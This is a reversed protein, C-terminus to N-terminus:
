SPVARSSPRGTATRSAHSRAPRTRRRRHQSHAAAPGHRRRRRRRRRRHQTWARVQGFPHPNKARDAMAYETGTEHLYWNVLPSRSGQSGFLQVEMSVTAAAKPGQARRGIPAGAARLAQIGGPRAVFGDAVAASMAFLALLVQM